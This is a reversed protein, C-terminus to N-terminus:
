GTRGYKRAYIRASHEYERRTMDLKEHGLWDAVRAYDFGV